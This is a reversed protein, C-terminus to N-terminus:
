QNGFNLNGHILSERGDRASIQNEPVANLSHNDFQLAVEFSVDPHRDSLALAVHKGIADAIIGASGPGTVTSSCDTGLM